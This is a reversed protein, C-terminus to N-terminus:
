RNEVYLKMIDRLDPATQVASEQVGLLMEKVREARVFAQNKLTARVDSSLLPVNAGMNSAMSGGGSSAAGQGPTTPIDGAFATVKALFADAPGMLMKLASQKLGSCAHKLVMDLDKKADTEKEHMGPLGERALQLISNASDFRILARANTAFHTLAQQSPAFDLM